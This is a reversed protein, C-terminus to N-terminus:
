EKQTTIEKSKFLFFISSFFILLIVKLLKRKQNQKIITKMVKEKRPQSEEIKDGTIEPFGRFM